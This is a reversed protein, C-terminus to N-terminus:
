AGCRTPYTTCAANLASAFRADPISSGQYNFSTSVPGYSVIGVIRLTPSRPTQGASLVQFNQVWPGGSSGGRMDSGMIVTNTFVSTGTQGNVSHMRLCSDFNCPYGLVSVHNGRLAGTQWGLYGTYHGAFRGAADPSLVIFGYDAANPVGGGGSFWTATVYLRTNTWSGFPAAGRDYAPIILYNRSFHDARGDGPHICHGATAVIGVLFHIPPESQLNMPHSFIKPCTGRKILSGSCVFRIGNYSTFFIKVITSLPYYRPAVDPFVRLIPPLFISRCFRPPPLNPTVLGRLIAYRTSTFPNSNTSFDFPSVGAESNRSAALRADAVSLVRRSLSAPVKHSARAGNGLFPLLWFFTLSLIERSSILTQFRV